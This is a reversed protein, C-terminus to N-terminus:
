VEDGILMLLVEDDPNQAKWSERWLVTGGGTLDPVETDTYDESRFFLLWGPGMPSDIYDRVIM